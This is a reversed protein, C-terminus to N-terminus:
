FPLAALIRGGFKAWGDEDLDYDIEDLLRALEGPPLAGPTAALQAVLMAVREGLTEAPARWAALADDVAGMPAIEKRRAPHFTVRGGKVELLGLSGLPAPRGAASVLAQKVHTRLRARVEDDPVGLEGAVQVVLKPADHGTPPLTGPQHTFTKGHFTGLGEIVLGGADALARAHRWLAEDIRDPHKM